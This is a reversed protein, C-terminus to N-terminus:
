VHFLDLKEETQDFGRRKSKDSRGLEGGGGWGERERERM